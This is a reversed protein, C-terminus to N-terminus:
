QVAVTTPILVQEGARLGALVEVSDAGARGLRVFRLESHDGSRVLVGTLDGEHRVATRPLLLSSRTGQPLALSAASGALYEGARNDVIANVTYLSGGAPVVGEVVATAPVDEIRAALTTGRRLGRAVGPPVTVSVRLRSADQITLLPTGPAAFAGPDVSRLIVTGTFPATVRAYTSVAALESAGARAANVAAEARALGTEAADLQARPAADEAFLARMRQAHTVAERHMAEAEAVSAAVQAAKASLERADIEALLAGARVMDGERVRVTTVTGMLKTSLTAEEYPEAVGTAEFEDARAAPQVELWTGAPAAASTAEPQAEPACGWAAVAIAVVGAAFAKM